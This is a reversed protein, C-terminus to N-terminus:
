VRVLLHRLVDEQELLKKEFDAPFTEAEVYLDFYHGQQQGKIKYSLAKSGMDEEKTVKVGKLWEKVTDLLKKRKDESLVPSVVLVLEYQRM